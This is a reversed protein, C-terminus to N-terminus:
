YSVFLPITLQKAFFNKIGNMEEVSLKRVGPHPAPRDLPYIMWGRLKFRPIIELWQQLTAENYNSYVKGNELKIELFITQLYFPLPFTELGAVVHEFTIGQSPQNIISFLEANPADLKLIPNDVLQLAELVSPKHLMTANSLVSVKASPFYTARLDLVVKVIDLFNPHLTPEGNGSFTISDLQEGAQKLEILKAELGSALDRVSPFHIKANPSSTWGCECYVCNFNCYKQEPLVVNIGLSLGLRRSRIPGFVLQHFLNSM